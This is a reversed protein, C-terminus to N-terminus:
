LSRIREILNTTSVQRVFPILVTHGGSQTVAGSEPLSALSYDGGKVYIDPRLALVLDVATPEEFIVVADVARLAALVESRETQSNLPRSPGKLRRVSADSNLGVVLTRGLAKAEGLYHVHGSHLLDFCGNTLVLPRWVEPEAELRAQLDRLMFIHPVPM